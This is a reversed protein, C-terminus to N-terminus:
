DLIKRIKSLLEEIDIPKTVYDVAGLEMSRTKDKEETKATVMIVPIKKGGDNKKNISRM